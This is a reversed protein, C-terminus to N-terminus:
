FPKATRRRVTIEDVWANDSLKLIFLVTDAIDEPEILLSRDIDPRAQIALRTNVAGPHILAVSIGDQQYENAITKTIGVVGCKSATYISQGSYCKDVVNSSINIIIGNKQSIMIKLAQQCSIVVTKLNINIIKDFDKSSFDLFKGSAAVAANNILIDLRGYEAMTKDFLGLIQEEESLDAQVIFSDGKFSDIERKTEELKKITRAAIVVKIGEKALAISINKGIGMSAGTVIAVKGKLNM